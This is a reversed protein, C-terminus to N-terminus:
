LRFKPKNLLRAKDLKARETENEAAIREADRQPAEKDDLRRSEVIAAQAPADLRKLVGVLQFSPGYSSRILEFRYQSDQWQALVEEPDGYRGPTSKALGAPKASAGYASSIADVLDGVTLGETAYRDYNIVIQYLEGNYFSFVVDKAPEAQATSGLPQPSWELEQILAPRSHTVKAQSPNSDAQKAVTALDTGLQFNRYKSLDEALAAVSMMGLAVLPTLASRSLTSLFQTM